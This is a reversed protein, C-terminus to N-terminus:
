CRILLVPGPRGITGFLSPPRIRDSTIREKIGCGLHYSLRGIWLRGICALSPMPILSTETIQSDIVILRVQNM